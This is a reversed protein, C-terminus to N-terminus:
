PLTFPVEIQTVVEVTEGDIVTPKYLWHKVADLAAGVLVPHGSIVQLNRIAGDRSIIAAFKVIGQIRAQSALPPYVPETSRILRTRQVSGSVEIRRPTDPKGEVARAPPPPPAPGAPLGGIIGGLAMPEGVKSDPPPEFVFLNGPIPRDTEIVTYNTTAATKSNQVQQLKEEWYDRLILEDPKSIWVRRVVDKAMRDEPAGRYDARVVWCPVSHGSFEITDDDEYVAAAINNPNRGFDLTDLEGNPAWASVTKKSYQNGFGHYEWLNTGDFVMLTIWGNGVPYFWEFRGPGGRVFALKFPNARPLAGAFGNSKTGALRVTKASFISAGARQLLERPDPRAQAFLDLPVLSLSLAASLTGQVILVPFGWKRPRVASGTYMLEGTLEEPTSTPFKESPHASGVLDSRRRPSARASHELDCSDERGYDNQLLAM